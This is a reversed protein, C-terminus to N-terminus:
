CGPSLSPQTQGVLMRARSCRFALEVMPAATRSRSAQGRYVSVLVLKRLAALSCPKGHQTNRTPYCSSCKREPQAGFERICVLSPKIRFGHSGSWGGQLGATVWPIAQATRAQLQLESVDRVSAGSTRADGHEVGPSSKFIKSLTSANRAHSGLNQPSCSSMTSHGMQRAGLPGRSHANPSPQPNM